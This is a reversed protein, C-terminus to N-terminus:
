DLAIANNGFRTPLALGCVMREAQFRFPVYSWEPGLGSPTDM